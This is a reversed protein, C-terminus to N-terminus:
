MGALVWELLALHDMSVKKGGHRLNADPTNNAPREARILGDVINQALQRMKGSALDSLGGRKTGGTTMLLRCGAVVYHERFVSCQAPRCGNYPDYALAHCYVVGGPPATASHFDLRGTRVVSLHFDPSVRLPQPVLHLGYGAVLQARVLRRCSTSFRSVPAGRLVVKLIYALDFGYEIALQRIQKQCSEAPVMPCLPLPAIFAEPGELATQINAVGGGSEEYSIGQDYEILEAIDADSLALVESVDEDSLALVEAKLIDRTELIRAAPKKPERIPKQLLIGIQRYLQSTREKCVETEDKRFVHKSDEPSSMPVAGAIRPILRERPRVCPSAPFEFAM